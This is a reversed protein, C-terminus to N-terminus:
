VYIQPKAGGLLYTVGWVMADMHNPSDDGPLWMCMEDELQSYYGIHHVRGQEYVAAVPEARTHKGRSAHVLLVMAEPDVQQIVETVMQGGQNSEAIIYNAEWQKFAKVAAAAWTKPSGQLSLDQLIYYQEGIRGCVVIGAEDGESTISPDVGVVILDFNDKGPNRLLRNNEIITRTWLAGPVEDVDEALIEQRYALSTMDKSIEELAQRPLKPNDHSSGTFTRWRAVRGEEEALIMEEVARKFLKAAHQKDRARSTSRTRLSPPTYIFIADGDNDLLMPAGVLQWANEHMLQYEDMIILDAFDGRMTDANWATKARIRQESGELEILHEMENKRYVGADLPEAMFEKVLFWFRALQESTPAAYLVRHGELFSEVAIDAALFTKGFRRGARIIKRKAPHDRVELQREHLVPLRVECNITRPM